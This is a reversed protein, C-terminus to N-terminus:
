SWAVFFSLATAANSSLTLPTTLSTQGTGNTAWRFTAATLGMNLITSSNQMRLLTPQTTGLNFVVAAYVMQGATLAQPTTLACTVAGTSLFGAGIDSSGTLKTGAANYLGAFSTTSAGVGVATCAYILNTITTAKRVIIKQLYVTGAVAIVGGSGNAYDANAGLWGSDAPLWMGGAFPHIHGGDAAKGVTGAGATGDETVDTATGDLQLYGPQSTSAPGPYLPM